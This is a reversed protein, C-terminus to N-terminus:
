SRKFKSDVPKVAALLLQTRPPSSHRIKPSGTRHGGRDFCVFVGMYIGKTFLNILFRNKSSMPPIPVQIPRLCGQTKNCEPPSLDGFQYPNQYHCCKFVRHMMEVLKIEKESTQKEYERLLKILTQSTQYNLILNFNVILYSAILLQLTVIIFIYFLHTMLTYTKVYAIVQQLRIFRFRSSYM